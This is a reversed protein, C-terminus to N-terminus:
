RSSIGVATPDTIILLGPSTFHVQGFKSEPVALQLALDKHAALM